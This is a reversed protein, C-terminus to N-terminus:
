AAYSFTIGDMLRIKFSMINSKGIFYYEYELYRVFYWYEYKAKSNGGCNSDYNQKGGHDKVVDQLM